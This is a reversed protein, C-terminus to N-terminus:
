DPTRRDRTDGPPARRDAPKATSTNSSPSSPAGACSLALYSPSWLHGRMRARVCPGTSERRVNYATRDKLRQALVPIVLTPPHHVLLHMHDAEGNFEVSEADLEVCMSRMTNQTFTPMVDTFVRRRYKTLFVLHAPLLSM